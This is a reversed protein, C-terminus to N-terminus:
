IQGCLFLLLKFLKSTYKEKVASIRLYVAWATMIMRLVDNGVNGENVLAAATTDTMM